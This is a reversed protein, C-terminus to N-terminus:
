EVPLNNQRPKGFSYSVFFNISRGPDIRRATQIYGSYVDQTTVTKNSKEVADISVGWNFRMNKSNGSLEIRSGINYFVKGSQIDSDSRSPELSGSIGVRFRRDIRYSASIGANINDTSYFDGGVRALTKAYKFMTHADLGWVITQKYIMRLFLIDKKGINEYTRVNAGEENVYNVSEISNWVHSYSLILGIASRVRQTFYTFSLQDTKEQKLNPNGTKIYLPNVQDYYPNIQGPSPLRNVRNYRFTINRSAGAIISYTFSPSFLWYNNCVKQQDNEKLYYTNSCFTNGLKFTMSHLGSKLNYKLDLNANHQLNKLYNNKNIDIEWINEIDNYNYLNGNTFNRFFVYSEELILTNNDNIKINNTSTVTHTQNNDIKDTKTFSSDPIRYIDFLQRSTQNNIMCNYNIDFGKERLKQTSFSISGAFIDLNVNMDNGSSFNLLPTNSYTNIEKVTNVSRTKGYQTNFHLASKKNLNYLGYFIFNLASSNSNSFSETEVKPLSGGESESGTEQRCRYSYNDSFSFGSNIKSKLVFSLKKINSAIDFGTTLGGNRGNVNIRESLGFLVGEFLSTRTVINVVADFNEYNGPPNPLLEIYKINLGSISKMVLNTGSLLPTRKGNLLYAIKKSGGFISIENNFGLEIFPLKELLNVIKTEKAKPDKEVDYVFADRTTRILKSATVVVSDLTANPNLVIRGANLIKGRNFTVEKRYSSYGIMSVVLVSPNTAEPVSITAKGEENTNEVALLKNNMDRLVVTAMVVPQKVNDIVTVNVIFKDQAKSIGAYFVQLVLCFLLLFNRGM